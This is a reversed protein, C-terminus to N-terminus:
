VVVAQVISTALERVSSTLLNQAINKSQQCDGQGLGDIAIAHSAAGFYFVKQDWSRRLDIAWKVQM